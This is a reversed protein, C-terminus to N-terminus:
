PKSLAALGRWKQVYTFPLLSLVFCFHLIKLTLVFELNFPVRLTVRAHVLLGLRLPLYFPQGPSGLCLTSVTSTDASSFSAPCQLHHACLLLSSVHCSSHYRIAHVLCCLTSQYAAVTLCVQPSWSSLPFILGKM